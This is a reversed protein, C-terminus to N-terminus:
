KAVITQIYTQTNRPGDVRVTIRYYYQKLPALQAADVGLDNGSAIALGDVSICGTPADLPKGQAQCLRQITYSVNNGATDAALTKIRNQATLRAWYSDWSGPNLDAATPTAAAYGNPYDNVNLELRKNPNNAVFKGEIYQIAAEAGAEGSHVAAQQFAINGAIINTTDVSRVLAIGALTMAVLIILAILLVVGQQNRMSHSQQALM